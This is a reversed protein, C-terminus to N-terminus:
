SMNEIIVKRIKDTHNHAFLEKWETTQKDLKDIAMNFEEPKTIYIAGNKEELINGYYETALNNYNVFITPTHYYHAELCTTSSITVHVDTWKLYEYINVDTVLQINNANFKLIEDNHRPIYVFLFDENNQAVEDIFKSLFEEANAQGSVVIIRNYKKREIEFIDCSFFEDARELMYLGTMRVEQAYQTKEQTFYKYEEEGFVCICDPNMLPEYDISNYSDHNRNLVGHQMEIVKIGAQHFAWVYGMKSYPCEMLVLQPKKTISLMLKMAINQAYLLRLYHKYNFSIHNDNLIDTLVDENDVKINFPRILLEILYIIMLLWSESIINKEKIESRKYHGLLLDPKEVMLCSDINATIGGSVRHVMKEGVRKRRECSTFLWVSHKKFIQLPNFSFLCRLVPAIVSKSAKIEKNSTLGDLIYLRLYSWASIGKYKISMVDYKKEIQRILDVGELYKM